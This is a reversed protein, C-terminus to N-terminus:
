CHALYKAMCNHRFSGGTLDSGIDRPGGEFTCQVMVAHPRQPARYSVSLHIKPGVPRLVQVDAGPQLGGGYSAWSGQWSGQAAASGPRHGAGAWCREHQAPAALQLLLLLGQAQLGQQQCRVPPRHFPLLGSSRRRPHGSVWLQPQSTQCPAAAHAVPGSRASRCQGGWTRCKHQCKRMSTQPRTCCVTLCAFSHALKPLNWHHTHACMVARPETVKCSAPSVCICLQIEPTLPMRLPTAQGDEERLGPGNACAAGHAVTGRQQM